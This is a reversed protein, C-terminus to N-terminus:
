SDGSSTSEQDLIQVSRMYSAYAKEDTDGIALVGLKGFESLAGILHFVVGEQTAANFHLGKTAAIEILDSPTLGRYHEEHLNDSSYYSCPKGAATFFLGTKPDYSGETLFQLMLFPHTTGGKRLNIEIAYHRWGSDGPVSIFDIGFRGLVGKSALVKGARLGLDQIDLRYEADAPFRCGLFVQSNSGGLVQDHTSIIELNGAPDVRFQASPSRKTKGELFEEVIGGMAKIKELFADLTMGHAEFALDPLREAIWPKLGSEPAGRFDFLANGEGSFGENLKVVARKLEPKQKKLCALAEAIDGASELDEFGAPLDIGAEKFIKRSGSKSGWFALEPDAGYVPLDLKLALKKELPTVTFFTIHALEPDPIAEKIQQILRPRALIKATLPMDSRDHCSLLLLRKRAHQAPIGPLLHLYYDIIPDAIPTSTVYIVRTRPFRLLLLLCLLREEYHHVGTIRTMVERDFTISPIIVVTRPAAPDGFVESFTACFRKQLARSRALEEPTFTVATAESM